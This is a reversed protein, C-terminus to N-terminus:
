KMQTISALTCGNTDGTVCYIKKAPSSSEIAGTQRIQWTVGLGPGVERGRWQRLANTSTGSSVSPSFGCYLTDTSAAVNFVEVAFAGSLTGSSTTATVDLAGDTDCIPITQIVGNKEAVEQVPMQPQQAQVPLLFAPWLTLLASLFIRM